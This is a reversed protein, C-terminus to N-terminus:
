GPQRPESDEFWFGKERVITLCSDVVDSDFKTGRGATISELAPDMGLAPRYPRHSSMAEVVDAVCIIKAERRIGGRSLGDPYGTGDVKEHHQLVIEAVPWPFPVTKLVEHGVRPHTKILSMEIETLTGPKNLIEAPIHIKGIDHLVAAVDIARREEEPLGLEEAMRCALRSVRRQHGATYPDRLEALQGFAHITGVMVEQLNGISAKLAEQATKRERLERRLARTQRKVERELYLRHERRERMMRARELAKTVTHELIAMDQVPKTLFDWAGLRLAEIVDAMMGAGSVIIVPTQPSAANIEALVQLGDLGPMKLDVLVVSPEHAVLKELGERGNEAQYVTFGVRELFGALAERVLREDDIYLVSMDEEAAKEQNNVAKEREVL